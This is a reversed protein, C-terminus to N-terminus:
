RALLRFFQRKKAADIYITTFYGNGILGLHAPADLDGLSFPIMAWDGSAVSETTWLQYTIGPATLFHFKLRGNETTEMENISFYDYDLFAFTGSLYEDLNSAGDQDFDGSPTIQAINTIAGGSNALMQLEWDDPLGDGDMDLSTTVYLAIAEGPNGATLSSYQMMSREVGNVRIVLDLPDGAKVAYPVYEDGVGSDIAVRLKFNVGPALIGDIAYVSVVNTGSRMLVEAGKQFPRGYGDKAQGYYICSPRPLGAMVVAPLLLLLLLNCIKMM